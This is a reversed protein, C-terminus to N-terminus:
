FRYQLEIGYTRPPVYSIDRNIFGYNPGFNNLRFGRANVEGLIDFVNKVYAIITYRDDAENFVLRADLQGFAEARHYKRNFVSSFTDDRWAYTVSATLNGPALQWTYNGNLTVRHPTAAALSQGSLDQLIAAPTSGPADPRGQAGPQVALPDEPDLFCCAEKIKSGLYSYNLILQLQPIPSVVSEIELGSIRARPLNAYFNQTSATLENYSSLVSQINKYDYIFASANIRFRRSVTQKLGIEYADVTEKDTTVLPSLTPSASNFGGAKYGRTYKAYLLRNDNPTWDIGLTGGWGEWSNKLGRRQFGTAPDLSFSKVSSDYPRGTAPNITGAGVVIPTIDVPVGFTRQLIGPCFPLEAAFCFLRAYEDAKKKDRTYRLGAHFAWQSSLKWDIQGFAAWSESQTDAGAMLMSRTPNPAAPSGTLTVPNEYRPDDSFRLDVPLSSGTEKYQYVGLLWQLAGGHTSSINLENSFWSVDEEYVGIQRPFIQIGGTPIIQTPAGAPGGPIGPQGPLVTFPATRAINDADRQLRYDYATYGGVYKIDFGDSHFTLQGVATDSRLKTRQPTDAEFCRKCITTPLPQAYAFLSTPTLASTLVLSTDTRGYISSTRGAVGRGLGDLGSKEYKIWWELGGDAFEGALQAQIEWSKGRNGESPGGALNKFYGDGQRSYSGVLRGRVTGAIPGSIATEANVSEYNGFSARVEAEAEDSPRKSIINMAGGISNRGYLTGQPGRLVETREIFLTSRGFNTVSSSYFGDGYLAVGGDSSRNNTLRGIGRLTIRDNFANYDLGPTFNAIDQVSNIGLKERADDTFASIAVAVSQLSEERKNATVIIETITSEDQQSPSAAGEYAASQLRSAPALTQALAPTAVVIASTTFLSQLLISRKM